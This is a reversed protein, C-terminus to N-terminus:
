RRFKAVEFAQGTKEQESASFFKRIITRIRKICRVALYFNKLSFKNCPKLNGHPTSTAIKSIKKLLKNKESATRAM